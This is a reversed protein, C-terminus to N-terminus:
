QKIENGRCWKIKNSLLNHSNDSGLFYNKSIVQLSAMELSLQTIHFSKSNNTIKPTIDFKVPLKNCFCLM